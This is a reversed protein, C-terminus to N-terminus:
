NEMFSIIKYVQRESVKNNFLDVTNTICVYRQKKTKEKSNEFEKLFTEYIDFWSAYTISILGSAVLTTFSNEKKCKLILEYRTM